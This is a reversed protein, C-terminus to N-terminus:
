HILSRDGTEWRVTMTIATVRWGADTQELTWRYDGGLVWRREDPPAAVHTAQFDATAMAEDGSISVLHNTILHQTVAFREFFSSWGSVIDTAAVIAPEGGNLSTYDLTVKPAFVEEVLADWERRDAFVAQKTLTEVIATRDDFSM